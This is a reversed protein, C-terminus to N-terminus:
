NRKGSKFADVHEEFSVASVAVLKDGNDSVIVALGGRKKNWFYTAGLESLRKQNHEAEDFSINLADAAIKIININM